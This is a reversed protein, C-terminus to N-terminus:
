LRGNWHSRSNNKNRYSVTIYVAVKYLWIEPLWLAIISWFPSAGDLRDPFVVPLGVTCHLFFWCSCVMHVHLVKGTSSQCLKFTKWDIWNMFLIALQSVMRPGPLCMHTAQKLWSRGKWVTMPWVAKLDWVWAPRRSTLINVLNNSPISEDWDIARSSYFESDM